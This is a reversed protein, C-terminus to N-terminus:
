GILVIPRKLDPDPELRVVDEYTPVEDGIGLV